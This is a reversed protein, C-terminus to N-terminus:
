FARHSERHRTLKFRAGGIYKAAKTPFVMESTQLLALERARGRLKESIYVCQMRKAFPVTARLALEEPLKGRPRAKM